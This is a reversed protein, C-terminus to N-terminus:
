RGGGSAVDWLVSINNLPRIGAPRRQSRLSRPSMKHNELGPEQAGSESEVSIIEGLEKRIRLHRGNPHGALASIFAREHLWRHHDGNTM